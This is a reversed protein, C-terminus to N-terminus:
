RSSLNMQEARGKSGVGVGLLIDVERRWTGPQEQGTHNKKKKGSWSSGLMCKQGELWVQLMSPFYMILKNVAADKNWLVPGSVYNDVAHVSHLTEQM